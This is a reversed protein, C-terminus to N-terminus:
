RKGSYYYIRPPHLQPPIALRFVHIPEGGGMPDYLGSAGVALERAPVLTWGCRLQADPHLELVTGDQRRFPISM